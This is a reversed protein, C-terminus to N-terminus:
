MAQCFVEPNHFFFELQTGSELFSENMLSGEGLHVSLLVKGRPKLVRHIEKFVPNLAQTPYNVLAYFGLIGSLSNNQASLAFFDERQFKMEPFSKAATRVMELGFDTVTIEVGLDHLFAGIHGSGCGIEWVPGPELSAAFEALWAQDQPKHSLEDGFVRAYTAANQDYTLQIHSKSQM